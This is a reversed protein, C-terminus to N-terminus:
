NEIIHPTIFILLEDYNNSKSRNKFLVGILPLDAFWPVASQSEYTNTISLGGIVTTEGDKVILETEAGKRTILPYGLVKQSFDPSDKDAIINM